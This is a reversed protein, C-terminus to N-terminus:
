PFNVTTTNGATVTFNKSQVFDIPDDTIPDDDSAECTLSATYTGADLFAATYQRSSKVVIASAVPPHTSGVDDVTAGSGSFVYVAPSCDTGILSADVTGTLTAAQDDAIIRLSPELVFPDGDVSPNQVSKRLDFDVTLAVNKNREVSFAYSQTLLPVNDDPLEVGRDGEGTVTVKSDAASVKLTISQYDGVPLRGQDLLVSATGDTSLVNPRLPPNFTFSRTTGGADVVDVGTFEIVVQTAGDVPADAVSLTLTGDNCGGLLLALPLLRPLNLRPIM